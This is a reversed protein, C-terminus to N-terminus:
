DVTKTTERAESIESAKKNYRYSKVIIVISMSIAFLSVLNGIIGNVVLVSKLESFTAALTSILTQVAVLATLTGISNLARAVLSTETHATVLGAIAAIIRYFTYVATGYVILKNRVFEAGGTLSVEFTTTLWGNLIFLAIGTAAYAKLERESKKDKDLKANPRTYLIVFLRFVALSFYYTSNVTYWGYGTTRGIVFEMVAYGIDIMVSFFAFVTRRLHYNDIIRSLRPYKVVFAKLRQPLRLLKVTGYAAYLLVISCAIIVAIRIGADWVELAISAICGGLGWLGAAWFFSTMVANPNVFFDKIAKAKKM